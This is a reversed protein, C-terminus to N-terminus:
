KGKRIQLLETVSLLDNAMSKPVVLALTQIMDIAKANDRLCQVLLRENKRSHNKWYNMEAKDEATNQKDSNM